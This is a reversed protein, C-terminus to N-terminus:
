AGGGRGPVRYDDASIRYKRLLRHFSEREITGAAAADTVSGGHAALLAGLYDHIARARVMDLLERYTLTALHTRARARAIAHARAAAAATEVHQVAEAVRAADDDDAIVLDVGRDAVIPTVQAALASPAVVADYQGVHLIACGRHVEECLLVDHHERVADVLRRLLSAAGVFVVTAKM